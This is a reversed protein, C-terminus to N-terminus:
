LRGPWRWTASAWGAAAFCGRHPTDGWRMGDWASHLEKGKNLGLYSHCRALKDAVTPSRERAREVPFAADLRECISRVINIHVDPCRKPLENSMPVWDRATEMATEVEAATYPCKKPAAVATACLVVLLLFVYVVACVSAISLRM